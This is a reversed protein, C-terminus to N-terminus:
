PATVEVPQLLKFHLATEAPIVIDKNGTFYAGATGAGGGVLAGIAAGKGGGALAGILAGAGAGGGIMVATRKGKGKETRAYSSTEIAYRKGGFSVADLRIHLKAGGKFKGLPKADVIVGDADAGKPIAVKGDVEVPELVVATFADGTSNKKTSLTENLRVAIVTGEPVTLKTSTLRELIGPEKGATTTAKGKAAETGPAPQESAPANEANEAPPKSGCGAFWLALLMALMIATIRRM